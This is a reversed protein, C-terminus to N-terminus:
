AAKPEPGRREAEAQLGPGELAGQEPADGERAATENGGPGGRAEAPRPAKAADEAVVAESTIQLERLRGYLARLRAGARAVVEASSEELEQACAAQAARLRRLRPARAQAQAPQPAPVARPPMPAPAPPPVPVAHPSQRPGGVAAAAGVGAAAGLGAAGLGSAAIDPRASSISAGALAGGAAGLATGAALGSLLRLPGAGQAVALAGGGGAGACAGTVAGVLAGTVLDEARRLEEAEPLEPAAGARAGREPGPEAVLARWPGLRCLALCLLARCSAQAARPQRTRRALARRAM